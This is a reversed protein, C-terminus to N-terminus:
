QNIYELAGDISYDDSVFLTLDVDAQELISRIQISCFTVGNCTAILVAIKAKHKM